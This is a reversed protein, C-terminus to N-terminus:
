AQDEDTFRRRTTDILFTCRPIPLEAVIPLAPPGDLTVIPRPPVMDRARRAEIKRRADALEAETYRAGNAKAPLSSCPAITSRLASTPHRYAVSEQVSDDESDDSAAARKSKAPRSQPERPKAANKRAVTPLQGAKRAAYVHQESAHTSIGLAAGIDAHSKGTRFLQIVADRSVSGEKAARGKRAIPPPKVPAPRPACRELARKKPPPPPAEIEAGLQGLLAGVHERVLLPILAAIDSAIHDVHEDLVARIREAPDGGRKV